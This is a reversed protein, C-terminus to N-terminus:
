TALSVTEKSHKEAKPQLPLPNGLAKARKRGKAELKSLDYKYRNFDVQMTHRASEVYRNFMQKREKILDAEMEAKSPMACQGTLYDAIMKGQQEAIPMIAGLPQLLGIFFLNNLGPKMMRKWLPLDNNPASIFDKDFFPFTVNYGTCYIIVEAPEISGDTFKVKDGMLEAINPKPIIDGSGLRLQIDQSITPHASLLKHDPRPLGYDWPRGVALNLMFNLIFSLFQWPVIPHLSALEDVPRGFLYKPIIWVGRRASLYLKEAIGPRCLECAIDMASNGMGVVVVRKGHMDVPEKPEVYYHSHIETGNFKGPFPPIPWRPDWHHGSAVILADYFRTEGSDLTVGWIGDDNLCARTVSTNFTIKDRLGFHDIYDDFYKKILAHGPYTPYDKPMPYDLYQMLNRSTNIHLSRYASSMGNKNKFCWNGGVQDSKEFCDFPIGKDNLAKVVAIGSSGAGILCVKPYSKNM